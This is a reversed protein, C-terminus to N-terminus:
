QKSVFIKFFKLIKNPKKIKEEKDFDDATQM